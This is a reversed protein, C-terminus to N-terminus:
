NKKLNYTHMVQSDPNRFKIIAESGNVSVDAFGYNGSSYWLSAPSVYTREQDLVGGLGGAIVYTVGEHKLLELQHLHGSLVIDVKYKEFLPTVAAITEPNDSWNWSHYQFGSAYYFGHSLVIKWDNPPISKLQKELWEAQRSGFSEASWEVDVVLFHVRGSDVRYYLPFDGPSHQSEPACFYEYHGLGTFMTDHNGPVYGTLTTSGLPSLSTLAERWQRNSPGMDVLDGLSFFYDFNELPNAIQTAMRLTLDARNTAAGFHADGGAAFHLSASDASPTRFHYIDGGTIQYAYQTEPQLDTLSFIHQTSPKEERIVTRKGNSEYWLSSTEPQISNQVVAVTPTPIGGINNTLILRPAIEGVASIPFAASM